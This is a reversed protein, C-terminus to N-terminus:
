WLVEIWVSQWEKVRSYFMSCVMGLFSVEYHLKVVYKGVEIVYKYGKHKQTNRSLWFNYAIINWWKLCRVVSLSANVVTNAQLSWNDASEAQKICSHKLLKMFIIIMAIWEIALLQYPRNRPLYKCSLIRLYFLRHRALTFCILKASCLDTERMSCFSFLFGRKYFLPWRSNM